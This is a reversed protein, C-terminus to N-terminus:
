APSSSCTTTDGYRGESAGPTRHSGLSGGVGFRFTPCRSYASSTSGVCPRTTSATSASTSTVPASTSDSAAGTAAPAASLVAAGVGTPTRPMTPHATAPSSRCLWWLKRASCAILAPAGATHPLASPSDGTATSSSRPSPSWM